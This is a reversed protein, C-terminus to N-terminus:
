EVCYRVNQLYTIIVQQSIKGARQESRAKDSEEYGRVVKAENLINCSQALIDPCFTLPPFIFLLYKRGYRM